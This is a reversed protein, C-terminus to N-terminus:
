SNKCKRSRVKPLPSSGGPYHHPPGRSCNSLTIGYPIDLYGRRSRKALYKKTDKTNPPSGESLHQLSRKLIFSSEGLSTTEQEEREPSMRKGPYSSPKKQM